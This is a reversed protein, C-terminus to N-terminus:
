ESETTHTLLCKEGRNWLLVGVDRQSVKKKEQLVLPPSVHFSNGRVKM